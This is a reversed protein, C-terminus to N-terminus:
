PTTPCRAKSERLGKKVKRYMEHFNKSSDVNIMKGRSATKNLKEYFRNLDSEPMNEGRKELTKSDARLVLCLDPKPTILDFLGQKFSSAFSLEDYFYRDILVFDSKIKRIKIYRTWMELYYALYFLFSRNRYRNLRNENKEMEESEKVRRGRVFAKILPNEFDRWGMFRVEVSKGSKELKKKVFKIFNSKGSGDSGVFVIKKSKM